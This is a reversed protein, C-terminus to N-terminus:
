LNECVKTFIMSLYFFDVYYIHRLIFIETIARM